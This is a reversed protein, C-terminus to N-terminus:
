ANESNHWELFTEAGWNLGVLDTFKDIGDVFRFWDFLDRKPESWRMPDSYFGQNFEVPAKFTKGERALAHRGIMLPELSWNKRKQAYEIFESDPEGLEEAKKRLEEAVLVRRRMAELLPVVNARGAREFSQWDNGDPDLARIEEMLVSIPKEADASYIFNAEGVVLYYKDIQQLNKKETRYFYESDIDRVTDEQTVQIQLAGYTEIAFAGVNYLDEKLKQRSLELM